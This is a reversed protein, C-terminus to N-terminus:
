VNPISYHAVLDDGFTEPDVSLRYPNCLFDARKEVWHAPLDRLWQQEFEDGNM